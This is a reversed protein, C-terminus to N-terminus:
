AQLSIYQVGARPARTRTDAMNSHQRHQIIRKAKCYGKKHGGMLM